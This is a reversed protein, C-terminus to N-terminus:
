RSSPFWFVSPPMYPFDIVSGQRPQSFVSRSINSSASSLCYSNQKRISSIGAPARRVPSHFTTQSSFFFQLFSQCLTIHSYLLCCNFRQHLTLLNKRKVSLSSRVTSARRFHFVSHVESPSRFCLNEKSYTLRLLLKTFFEPIHHCVCLPRLLTLNPPVAPSITRRDWCYNIVTPHSKKNYFDRVAVPRIPVSTHVSPRANSPSVSM